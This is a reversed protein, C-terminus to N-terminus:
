SLHEVILGAINRSSIVSGEIASAVSEMTNVYFVGPALVVPQFPTNPSLVPFTFKWHKVYVASPNVFIKPVEREVAVKSFLKYIIGGGQAESEVSIVTFPLASTNTTLVSDPATSGSGGGFYTGNVADAIVQTVYWTVFPRPQVFATTFAFRVDAYEYPCALVVADYETEAVQKQTSENATHVRYKGNGADYVTDISSSTFLRAHSAKLVGKVLQDNGGKASYTDTTTPLLSVIGAFAHLDLEQGYIVRTIPEIMMQQYSAPVGESSLVDATSFQVFPLMNGFRLFEDITKFPKSLEREEYNRSLSETFNRTTKLVDAGAVPHLALERKWPQWGSGGWMGLEGNGDFDDDALPLDIARVLERTYFNVESWADGGMNQRTGGIELSQLRGGVEDEKEFVDVHVSHGAESGFKESYYAAAAGGIGGGIVAVNVDRAAVCCAFALAVLALLPLRGLLLCM